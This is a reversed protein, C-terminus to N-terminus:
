EFDFRRFAAAPFDCWPPDQNRLEKTYLTVLKHICILEPHPPQKRMLWRLKIKIFFHMGPPNDWGRMSSKAETACMPKHANRQRPDARVGRNQRSTFIVGKIYRDTPGAVLTLCFKCRHTRVMENLPYRFNCLKCNFFYSSFQSFSEM